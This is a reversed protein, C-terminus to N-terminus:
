YRHNSMTPQITSAYDYRSSSSLHASAMCRTQTCLVVNASQQSWIHSVTSCSRGQSSSSCCGFTGVVLLLLLLVVVEVVVMHDQGHGLPREKACPAVIM